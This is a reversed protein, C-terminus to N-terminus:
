RSGWEKRLKELRSLARSIGAISDNEKRLQSLQEDIMPGVIRAWEPENEFEKLPIRKTTKNIAIHKASLFVKVRRKQGTLSSRAYALYSRGRGLRSQAKAEGEAKRIRRQLREWHFSVTQRQENYRVRPYLLTEDKSFQAEKMTQFYGDTTKMGKLLLLQRLTILSKRIKELEGQVGNEIESDSIEARDAVTGELSLWLCDKQM